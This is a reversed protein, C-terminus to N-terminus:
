AVVLCLDDDINLPLLGAAASEILRQDDVPCLARPVGDLPEFTVGLTEALACVYDEESLHGAAILVRDAGVGVRAARQVAQALVARPFQSRVGDLEPCDDGTGAWQGPFVAARVAGSRVGFGM